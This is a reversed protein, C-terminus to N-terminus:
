CTPFPLMPHSGEEPIFTLCHSKSCPSLSLLLSYLLSSNPKTRRLPFFPTLPPEHTVALLNLCPNHIQQLLLVIPQTALGRHFSKGNGDPCPSRAKGKLHGATCPTHLPPKKEFSSCHSLASRYPWCWRLCM